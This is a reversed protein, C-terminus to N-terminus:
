TTQLTRVTPQAVMMPIVTVSETGAPCTQCISEALKGIFEEYVTWEPIMHWGTAVLEIYYVVWTEPKGLESCSGLESGWTGDSDDAAKMLQRTLTDLDHSYGKLMQLEVAVSFKFM